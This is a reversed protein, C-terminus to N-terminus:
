SVMLMSEVTNKIGNIFVDASFKTGQIELHNRLNNKLKPNRLVKDINDVAEDVSGYMLLPHDVIETQGGSDPVYTICGAKVMEAVSIGFAEGQCAHIGFEHQSIIREKEPGFQEGELIIWEDNKKAIGEISKGYPTQSIQGIIHLHIDHGRCRVKQLIEIITEIRKEPSIRGVCVFGFERKDVASVAFDATVPPYLIDADFGYKDKIIKASWKSNAIIVDEGDFVNRGSPNSIIKILKLYIERILKYHHFLGRNGSPTPHLSRRIEDDWSLDAICHIAPVGFDCINYTSILVDYNSAIKRCFRHYFAGRLADGGGLWNLFFPLPARKINFQGVELSTGYFRNLEKLNVAGTTILSIDFNEKLTDVTWMARAESGGRGMVPHAVAVKVKIENV